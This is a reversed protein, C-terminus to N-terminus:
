ERLLAEIRLPTRAEDGPFAMRTLLALLTNITDLNLVAEAPLQAIELGTFNLPCVDRQRLQSESDKKGDELPRFQLPAGHSRCVLPRAEYAVCAGHENLLACRKGKHPDLAAVRRAEAEAEPNAAFFARLAEKELANVTLGPKCCSHCGLRCAFQDPHRGRIENFKEEVRRLLERYQTLDKPSESESM